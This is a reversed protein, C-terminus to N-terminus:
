RGSGTSAGASPLTSIQQARGVLSMAMSRYRRVGRPLRLFFDVITLRHTRSLITMPVGFGIPAKWSVITACLGILPRRVNCQTVSLRASACRGASPRSRLCTQFDGTRGAGTKGSAPRRRAAARSKQRPSTGTSLPRPSPDPLSSALCSLWGRRWMLGSCQEGGNRHERTGSRMDPWGLAVAGIRAHRSDCRWTRAM